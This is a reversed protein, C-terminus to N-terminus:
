PTRETGALANKGACRKLHRGSSSSRGDGELCPIGAGFPRCQAAAEHRGGRSAKSAKNGGERCRERGSRGGMGGQKEWGGVGDFLCSHLPNKARWAARRRTSAPSDQANFRPEQVTCVARTRSLPSCNNSEEETFTVDKMGEDLMIKNRM